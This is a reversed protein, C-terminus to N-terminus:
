FWGGNADAASSVMGDTMVVKGYGGNVGYTFSQATMASNAGAFADAAYYSQADAGAIAGGGIFGGRTFEVDIVAANATVAAPAYCGGPGCDNAFVNPTIALMTILGLAIILKKM